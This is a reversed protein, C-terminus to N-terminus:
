NSHQKALQLANLIEFSYFQYKIYCSTELAWSDPTIDLMIGSNKEMTYCQTEM